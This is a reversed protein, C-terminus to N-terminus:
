RFSKPPKLYKAPANIKGDLTALFAELQAFEVDTIVFPELESRGVDASPTNRYHWTVDELSRLGGNHMFPGSKTLYRLTPTKFAGTLDAGKSRLFKLNKCQQPKADSYKSLCNFEDQLVKSAGEIRGLENKEPGSFVVGINHFSQNTLLPGSHCNLCGGRQDTIFVKVGQSEDLTLADAAKPKQKKILAAVYRDFKTEGPLLRRGYAAIAKGVNAFARNIGEADDPAPLPGFIQQYRRRYNASRRLVDIVKARPMNHERPNEISALAQSWQSDKRGDWFFWRNYAAGIIMPANRNTVGVGRALKLGDTFNQSPSHCSACAIKGNSSLRRDFFLLHGFDAARPNDGFKNSPDPPLKPLNGIWLSKIKKLEAATWGDVNWNKKTVKNTSSTVQASSAPMLVTVATLLAIAGAFLRAAFKTALLIKLGESRM